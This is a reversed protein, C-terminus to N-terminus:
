DTAAGGSRDWETSWELERERAIAPYRRTVVERYTPRRRDIEARVARVAEGHEVVVAEERLRACAATVAILSLTLLRKLM